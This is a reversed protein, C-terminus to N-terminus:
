STLYKEAEALTGVMFIGTQASSALRKVQMAVVAKPVMAVSKGVGSKQTLGMLEEMGANIADSQPPYDSLDALVTWGSKPAKAVAVRFEAAFRALAAQDFTGHLAFTLRSAQQDWDVEYTGAV